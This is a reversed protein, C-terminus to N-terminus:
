LILQRGNERLWRRQKKYGPYISGVKKWFRRSHDKVELHTLEHAVVYDIVEIPALVLRWSFNLNGKHSCSGWRRRANTIGVRGYRLDFKAAYLQVRPPIINSAQIKYWQAFAQKAASRFKRSLFFADEFFLVIKDSDTFQLKYSQGLLPFEEGESFMRCPTRRMESLVKEKTRNIWEQHGIVVRTIEDIKAWEPARVVLAADRSIQLGITRRRSRILKDIKIDGCKM